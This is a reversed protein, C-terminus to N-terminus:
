ILTLLNKYYEGLTKGYVAIGDHIGIIRPWHEMIQDMLMQYVDQSMKLGFPMRLFYYWGFYASFTAILSSEWDLCVSWFGNHVYWKSFVISGPSDIILRKLYIPAKHHECIITKLGKCRSVHMHIQQGEKPLCPIIHMCHSHTWPHCNRDNGDKSASGRIKDWIEIPVTKHGNHVLGVSTDVTIYEIPM